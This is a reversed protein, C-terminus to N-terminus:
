VDVVAYSEENSQVVRQYQFELPSMIFNDQLAELFAPKRGRTKPTPLLKEVKRAQGM